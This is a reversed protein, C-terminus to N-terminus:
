ASPIGRGARWWLVALGLMAAVSLWRTAGTEFVVTANFAIFALYAHLPLAIWRGRHRYRQDGAWHWWAADAAWLLAFIYNFWLGGGWNWGLLEETQRATERYADAHRWDHFFHFAAAVHVLLLGCGLTWTGRAIADRRSRRSDRGGLLLALAVVYCGLSLRVTWRTLGDAFDMTM